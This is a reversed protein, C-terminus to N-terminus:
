NNRASYYEELGTIKDQIRKEFVRINNTYQDINFELECLRDFICHAIM